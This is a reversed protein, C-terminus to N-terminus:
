VVKLVRDEAIDYGDAIGTIIDRDPEERVVRARPEEVAVNIPV